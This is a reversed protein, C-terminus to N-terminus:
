KYLAALDKEYQRLIVSRRLKMTPTLHGSLESWPEHVLIFGKVRQYHALSENSRGVESELWKIVNPHIAMFQPATWHVGNADCWSKLLEFDPLILATVYPRDAGFVMCNEIYPSELLAREVLQPAVYRGGSVKFLDKQRDTIQLFRKHVFKGVDGTRFWGEATLVEQTEQPRRYYGMMVGPGRVCIEGEGSEDPNDIKVEVGPIPIGVTGFHVGGPDFRNFSIVPSTETLGYGERIHIGAASFLRGLQPRLAAAGTMIGQVHGGLANRWHRFVLFDAIFLQIWYAPPFKKGKKYAHGIGIAWKSIRRVWAPRKAVASQIGSYFKELVRPVVTFYHPRAERIDRMLTGSQEAYYITAGAAMYSWTVMREFVHSLPLFSFVRHTFDVPVLTIVGKINSVINQHSLMVGKPEGTSGSTYIITALDAESIGARIAELQQREEEVVPQLSLAGPGDFLWINELTDPAVERVRAALANSSTFCFRLETDRLIYALEADTAVAHMPVAVGGAQQVAFDCFHWWPTNDSAILGVRDGRNLGARLLAMSIEDVLRLADATSWHVNGGSSRMSFAMPKAYRAQQYPLIDFIRHFDM